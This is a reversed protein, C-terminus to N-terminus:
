RHAHGDEKRVAPSPLSGRVVLGLAVVAMSLVVAGHVEHELADLSTIHVGLDATAALAFAAIGCRFLATALAQGSRTIAQIALM